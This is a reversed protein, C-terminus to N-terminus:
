QRAPYRGELGLSLLLAVSFTQSCGLLTTGDVCHRCEVDRLAGDYLVVSPAVGLTLSTGRLRRAVALTLEGRLERRYVHV